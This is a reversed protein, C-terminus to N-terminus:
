FLARDVLDEVVRLVGVGSCQQPGDGPEPSRLLVTQGRDAAGDGIGPVLGASTHEAGPTRLGDFAQAVGGNRPDGKGNGPPSDSAQETFVRVDRGLVNGGGRFLGGIGVSVVLVWSVTRFM